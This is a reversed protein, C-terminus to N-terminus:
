NASGLPRLRSVLLAQEALHVCLSLKRPMAEHREILRLPEMFEHKFEFWIDRVTKECADMCAKAHPGSKGACHNKLGITYLSFEQPTRLDMYRDPDALVRLMEDAPLRQQLARQMFLAPNREMAQREADEDAPKHHTEAPRRGAETSAAQRTEGDDAPRQFRLRADVIVADCWALYKETLQSYTVQKSELLELMARGHMDLRADSAAQSMKLRSKAVNMLSMTENMQQEFYTGPEKGRFMGYGLAYFPACSAFKEHIKDLARISEPTGIDSNAPSTGLVIAAILLFVRMYEFRLM